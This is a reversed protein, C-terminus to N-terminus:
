KFHRLKMVSDRSLQWGTSLTSDKKRGSFKDFEIPLELKVYRSAETIVGTLARVIQGDIECECDAYASPDRRMVARYILELKLKPKKM